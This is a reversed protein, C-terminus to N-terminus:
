IGETTLLTEGRIQALMAELHEYPIEFIEELLILAEKETVQEGRDQRELVEEIRWDM